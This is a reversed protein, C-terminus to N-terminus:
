LGRSPSDTFGISEVNGRGALGLPGAEIAGV